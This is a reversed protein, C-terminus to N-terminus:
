PEERDSMAERQKSPVFGKSVRHGAESTGRLPKSKKEEDMRPHGRGRLM